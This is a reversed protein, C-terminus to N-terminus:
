YFNYLRCVLSMRSMALGRNKRALWDLFFDLESALAFGEEKEPGLEEAVDSQGSALVDQCM